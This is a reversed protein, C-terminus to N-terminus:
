AYLWNNIFKWEVVRDRCSFSSWCVSRRELEFPGRVQPNRYFYLEIEQNGFAGKCRLALISLLQPIYEVALYISFFSGFSIHSLYKYHM